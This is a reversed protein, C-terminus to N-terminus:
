RVTEVHFSGYVFALDRAHLARADDDHTDIADALSAPRARPVLLNWYVMRAAPRAVRTIARLMAEHHEPSVWEFLDSLYLASLAGPSLTGLYSELDSRVIKIHDTAARLAAHNSERLYVPGHELDPYRGLLAYQVFHNDRPSTEVLARRARELFVEGIRDQDVYQFFAPDRGLRGMVARGFFVTFLARWRRNNWVRDYYAARADRDEITMVEEVTARSHILPLIRARFLSLYKQFRGTHIIGRALVDEQTDFWARVEDRLERRLIDRYVAVRDFSPRAGLFAVYDYWPLRRLAALKLEFLANQSPSFDLATISRPRRLALAMVNDGASTLCLLDDKPGLQLGDAAIVPDEWCQSYVINTFVPREQVISRLTDASSSPAPMNM